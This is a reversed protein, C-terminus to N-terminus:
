KSKKSTVDRILWKFNRKEWARKRSDLFNLFGKEVDNGEKIEHEAFEAFRVPRLMYMAIFFAALGLLSFVPITYNLLEYEGLHQNAYMFLSGGTFIILVCIPLSYFAEVFKSLNGCTALNTTRIQPITDSHKFEMKLAQYITSNLLKFYVQRDLLWLIFLGLVGLFSVLVIGLQPDIISSDKDAQLMFGIGAFAGLLWASGLKRLEILQKNYQEEHIQLRKYQEFLQDEAAATAKTM